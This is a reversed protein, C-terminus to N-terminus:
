DDEQDNVLGIVRYPWQQDTSYLGKARRNQGIHRERHIKGVGFLRLCEESRVAIRTSLLGPPMVKLKVACVGAVGQDCQGWDCCDGPIWGFGVQQWGNKASGAGHCRPAQM